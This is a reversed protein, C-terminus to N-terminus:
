FVTWAVGVEAYWGVRLERHAFGDQVPLTPSWGLLAGVEVRHDPLPAFWVDLTGVPADWHWAPAGVGVALDLRDRIRLPVLALSVTPDVPGPSLRTSVGLRLSDLGFQAGLVPFVGSVPRSWRAPWAMGGRLGAVVRLDLRRLDSRAVSDVPRGDSVPREDASPAEAVTM